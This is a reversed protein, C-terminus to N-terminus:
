RAMRGLAAKLDQARHRWSHRSHALASSAAGISALLEPDDMSKRWTKALCAPRDYILATKGHVFGMEELEPSRDCLLVAGSGAVEFSKTLVDPAGDSSRVGLGPYLWNMLAGGRRYNGSSNTVLVAEFQNLKLNLAQFPCSFRAVELGRRRLATEAARRSPYRAGFTGLGRRPLALPHFIDSDFGKWVVESRIGDAEFRRATPANNVIMLQFGHRRFVPNWMGQYKNSGWSWYNNMADHDYMVRLGAWGQWDFPELALLDRFAVMWICVDVDQLQPLEDATRPLRSGVAHGHVGLEQRLARIWSGNPGTEWSERYVVLIKMSPGKADVDNAPDRPASATKATYSLRLRTRGASFM